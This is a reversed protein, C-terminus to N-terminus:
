EGGTGFTLAGAAYDGDGWVPLIRVMDYGRRVAARPVPVSMTVLSSAADAFSAPAIAHGVIVGERRFEIRYEDDCDLRLRLAADHRVEGLAIDLGSDTLRVPAQSQLTAQDVRILEPLRYREADILHDYLGLNLRAIAALRARTWLPGRTILRIQEYYAALGPDAILNADQALSDMYGPPELRYFHGPRWDGNRIAPLRALLPDALGLKDMIHRQPGAYFGVRGIAAEGLVQEPRAFVRPQQALWWARGPSRGTRQWQLLGTDPYYVRREDTVRQPGVIEDWTAGAYTFDQGSLLTIPWGALGLLLLAAAAIQGQRGSLLEGGFLALLCVAWLAATSFFRLSMFCGGIWIVYGLYFLLGLSLPWARRAPRHLPLLLALAILALTLPDRALADVYYALGQQLVEWRPIGTGLKAFTTNPLPTGYYLTSFM